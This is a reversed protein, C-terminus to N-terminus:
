KRGMGKAISNCNKCRSNEPITLFDEIGLIGGKIDPNRSCGCAPLNDCNLHARKLPSILKLHKEAIEGEWPVLAAPDVQFMKGMCKLIATCWFEVWYSDERRYGGGHRSGVYVGVAGKHRTRAPNLYSVKYKQGRVFEFKQGQANGWKLKGSELEYCRAGYGAHGRTIHVDDTAMDGGFRIATAETVDMDGAHM